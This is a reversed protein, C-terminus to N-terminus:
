ATSNSKRRGVKGDRRFPLRVKRIALRHPAKKRDRVGHATTKVKKKGPLHKVELIPVAIEARVAKGLKPRYKIVPVDAEHYDQGTSKLWRALRRFGREVSEAYPGVEAVYAVHTEPFFKIDPM